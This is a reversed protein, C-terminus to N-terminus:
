GSLLILLVQSSLDCVINGVPILAIGALKDFSSLIVCVEKLLVLLTGKLVWRFIPMNHELILLYGHM